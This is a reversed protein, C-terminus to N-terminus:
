HGGFREPKAPPKPPDDQTPKQAPDKSAQAAAEVLSPDIKPSGPSLLVYALTLVCAVGVVIAIMLRTRKDV